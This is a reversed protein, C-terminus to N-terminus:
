CTAPSWGWGLLGSVQPGGQDGLGASAVAGPSAERRWGRRPPLGQRRPMVMVQSWSPGERPPSLCLRVPQSPPTRGPMLPAGETGKVPRPTPQPSSPPAPATPLSAPPLLSSPSPLVSTRARSHKGEGPSQAPPAQTGLGEARRRQWASWPCPRGTLAQLSPALGSGPVCEGFHSAPKTHLDLGLGGEAGLGGGLLTWPTM